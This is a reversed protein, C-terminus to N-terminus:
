YSKCDRKSTAKKKDAKKNKNKNKNKAKQEAVRVGQGGAKKNDAKKGGKKNKNKKAAENKNVARETVNSSIEAARKMGKAAGNRIAVFEPVADHRSTVDVASRATLLQSAFSSLTFLYSLAQHVYLMVRFTRPPLFPM